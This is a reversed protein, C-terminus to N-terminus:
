REYMGKLFCADLGMIPRCWEVFGNKMAVLSFYLRQSRCPVQPMPREVMLILCNGVNTSRVMFCYDWLRHHQKDLKGYIIERARKRTM